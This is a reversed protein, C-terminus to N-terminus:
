GGTFAVSMYDALQGLQDKKSPQVKFVSQNGAILESRESIPNILNIRNKKSFTAVIQFNQQYLLGFILDMSKMEPKKLLQKTKATDKDVDYVYLKIKLGQKELSDLAMILGEYYPLFQFSKSTEFIKPDPNESDIHEVSDLFLPIMLAVKYLPKKTTTDKGCPLEAIVVTDTKEPMKGTEANNGKGPVPKDKSATGKSIVESKQGPVLIRLKQDAKIGEKVGPNERIIDNVEVGYAKSIMYLTQGRKITHIYFDRGDIKEIVSSRMQKLQDQSTQAVSNFESALLLVLAFLFSLRKMIHNFITDM